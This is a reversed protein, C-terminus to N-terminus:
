ETDQKITLTHAQLSKQKKSVNRKKTEYTTVKQEQLIKLCSCM